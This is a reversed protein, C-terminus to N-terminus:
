EAHDSRRPRGRSARPSRRRAGPAPGNSGNPCMLYGGALGLLAALSLAMRPEPDNPLAEVVKAGGPAPLEAEGEPPASLVAAARDPPDATARAPGAALRVGLAKLWTRLQGALGPFMSSVAVLLSLIRRVIPPEGPAPPDAAHNGGGALNAPAPARAAVADAAAGTAPGAQGPGVLPAIPTVSLAESRTNRVAVLAALESLAADIGPARQAEAQNAALPAANPQSVPPAPDGFSLLFQSTGARLAATLDRVQNGTVGFYDVGGRAGAPLPDVGLLYNQVGTPAFPLALVEVNGAVFVFGKRFTSLLSNDRPNFVVQSGGSGFLDIPVPDLWIVLVSVPRTAPPGLAPDFRDVIQGDITAPIAPDDGLATLEADLLAGLDDHLQTLFPTGTQWVALDGLAGAALVLGSAAVLSGEVAKGTELSVVPHGTFGASLLGAEQDNFAAAQIAPSLQIFYSGPPLPRDFLLTVTQRVATPYVTGSAVDVNTSPDYVVGQTAVVPIVEDDATDPLGDPGLWTVTYNAPNQATDPDLRDGQFTLVLSATPGGPRAGAGPLLAQAQVSVVRPLTDIDLTYAGAGGGVGFVHLTLQEGQPVVVQFREGSGLLSGAADRVEMSLGAGSTARFLGSFDLVEDGAGRAAETPATLTYYADTHGPVVTQTPEVLHVV